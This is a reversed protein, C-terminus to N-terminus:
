VSIELSWAVLRGVDRNAHDSIHLRWVGGAEIAGRAMNALDATNAASFTQRINDQDGGSRNHLTATVGEPSTLTLRLDGVWTHVLDVSVRIDSVRGSGNIPISSVIGQPVNDPISQNPQVEGRLVNPLPPNGGGGEACPCGPEDDYCYGLDRHDLVDVPRVIDTVPFAPLLDTVDTTTSSDGGDWPWMRDNLRHGQGGSGLPNFNAGGPHDTQWRAWIRDVQCHHLFFIPDNPSSSAAMDRGMRNHVTNHNPAGEVGPRFLQFVVQSLVNGVSVATPWGPGTNLTTNRQLTAGRARLQPHISWGLPNFSNRTRALYGSTIEFGSAGGSGLPGIREDTFLSTTEFVPGLGWNWYPLTVRPDVMQLAMEFRRIYERHWALFGPGNHAGDGTQAGSLGRVAVHIAVFQDYISVDSGAAFSHKLTVVARMLRRWEDNSLSAANKRVNM